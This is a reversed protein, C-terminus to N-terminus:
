TLENKLYRYTNLLKITEKFFFWLSCRNFYTNEKEPSRKKTKFYMSILEVQEVVTRVFMNAQVNQFIKIDM